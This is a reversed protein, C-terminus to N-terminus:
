MLSGDWLIDCLINHPEFLFFVIEGVVKVNSKLHIIVLVLQINDKSIYTSPQLINKIDSGIATMLLIFRGIYHVTTIWQWLTHFSVVILFILLFLCVWCVTHTNIHHQKISIPTITSYNKKEISFTSMTLWYIWCSPKVYNNITCQERKLPIVKRREISYALTSHIVKNLSPLNIKLCM